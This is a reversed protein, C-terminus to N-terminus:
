DDYVNKGSAPEIHITIGHFKKDRYYERIFDEVEHALEHAEEVTMGPKVVIHCDLYVGFGDTRSRIAHCDIVNPRFKEIVIRRLETPHIIARDLLVESAERFIKYAGYGIMACIILSGIIDLYWLGISVMYLAILVIITTMPDTIYHWASAELVSVGTRKAYYLEILSILVYACLLVILVNLVIQSIRIEYAGILFRDISELVIGVITIGLMLSITVRALAEYKGHGYPHDLDPPTAARKVAFVAIADNLIDLTSDMIYAFIVLSGTVISLSIKTLLIIVNVSLVCFLIKKATLLDQLTKSLNMEGMLLGRKLVHYIESISVV